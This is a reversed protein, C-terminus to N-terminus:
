GSDRLMQIIGHEGILHSSGFVFMTPKERMAVIMRPFWKKNHDRYLGIYPNVTQIHYSICFSATGMKDEHINMQKKKM